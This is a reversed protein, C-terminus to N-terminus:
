GHERMEEPVFFCLFELVQRGVDHFWGKQLRAYIYTM